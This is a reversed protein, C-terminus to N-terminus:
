FTRVCRVYRSSTKAIYGTGGSSFYVRYTFSSSIETSSWYNALDFDSDAVSNIGSRNSYLTSLQNLAPLYWNGDGYDACVSAAIPREACNSLIYSTNAAGDTQSQCGVGLETEYCGWEVGTSQDSPAVGM